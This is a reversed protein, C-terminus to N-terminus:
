EEPQCVSVCSASVMSFMLGDRAFNQLVQPLIKGIAEDKSKALVPDSISLECGDKNEGFVLSPKIGVVAVVYSNTQM